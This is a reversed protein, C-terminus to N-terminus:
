SLLSQEIYLNVSGLDINHVICAHICLLVSIYTLTTATAAARVYADCRVLCCCGVSFLFFIYSLRRRCMDAVAAKLTKWRMTSYIDYAIWIKHVSVHSRTCQAAPRWTVTVTEITAIKWEHRWKQQQGSMSCLISHRFARTYLSEGVASCQASKMASSHKMCM